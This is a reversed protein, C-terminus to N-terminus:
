RNRVIKQELRHSRRDANEKEKMRGDKAVRRSPPEHHPYSTIIEIMAAVITIAVAM